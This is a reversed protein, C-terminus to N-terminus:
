FPVAEGDDWCSVPLKKMQAAIQEQREAYQRNWQLIKQTAERIDVVGAAGAEDVQRRLAPFLAIAGRLAEHDETVSVTYIEDSQFRIQGIRCGYLDHFRIVGDGDSPIHLYPIGRQGHLLLGAPSERLYLYIGEYAKGCFGFDAAAVTEETIEAACHAEEPLWGITDEWMEQLRSVAEGNVAMGGCLDRVAQALIVFSRNLEEQMLFLGECPVKAQLYYWNSRLERLPGSWFQLDGKGRALRGALRQRFADMEGTTMETDSFFEFEIFYHMAGALCSIEGLARIPGAPFTFRLAAEEYSLIAEAGIGRPKLYRDRYACLMRYNRICLVRRGPEIPLIAPETAGEAITDWNPFIIRENGNM